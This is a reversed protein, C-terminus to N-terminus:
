EKRTLVKAKIAEDLVGIEKELFRLTRQCSDKLITDCEPAQSRNKEMTQMKVLDSRRAILRRLEEQEIEVPRTEITEKHAQAYAAITQADSRDTKGWKGQSKRYHHIQLPNERSVQFGAEILAKYLPMEYGGTPELVILQPNYLALRKCLNGYFRNEVRWHKQQPLLYIDLTDKSVDIGVFCPKVCAAEM